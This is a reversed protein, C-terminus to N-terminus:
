WREADEADDDHEADDDEANADDDEANADDDEADADDDEADAGDDEADDGYSHGAICLRKHRFVKSWILETEPSDSVRECCGKFAHTATLVRLLTWDLTDTGIGCCTVWSPATRTYAVRSSFAFEKAYDYTCLLLTQAAHLRCCESVEECMYPASPVDFVMATLNRRHMGRMEKKSWDKADKKFGVFVNVDRGMGRAEVAIKTFMEAAYNPMDQSLHQGVFFLYKGSILKVIEVAECLKRIGGLCFMEEFSPPMSDSAGLGFLEFGVGGDTFACHEYECVLDEGLWKLFVNAARKSAPVRVVTVCSPYEEMVFFYSFNHFFCFVKFMSSSHVSSMYFGMFLVM